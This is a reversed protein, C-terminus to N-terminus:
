SSPTHNREGKAAIVALDRLLYDSGLIHDVIVRHRRADLIEQRRQEKTKPGFMLDNPNTYVYRDTGPIRDGEKLSPQTRDVLDLGAEEFGDRAAAVIKAREGSDHAADVVTGILEAAHEAVVLHNPPTPQSPTETMVM